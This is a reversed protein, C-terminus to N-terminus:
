EILTENFKLYVYGPYGQLETACFPCVAQYACTGHPLPVESWFKVTKETAIHGCPNFAFLKPDSDNTIDDVYFAPEMGMCLKQATSKKYCTPCTAPLSSGGCVHGCNLYVYPQQSESAESTESPNRRPVVLFTPSSEGGSDCNLRSILGEIYEKTVSKKLGEATRWLLTVGCIDILSGDKLKNTANKIERGREQSSRSGRVSLISGCVSVERWVSAELEGGCFTGEPNSLLVGNTTLGDIDDDKKWKVAKVGLIINRRSDFGAACLRVNSLDCRDAIIRFAFRSVTSQHVKGNDELYKDLVVFDIIKDNARGIQFMDTKKDDEYEVVITEDKSIEYSISFATSDKVAKSLQATKFNSSCKKKVGNPEKRRTFLFKSRKRGRSGSPLCGNYGIVFLGGYVAEENDDLAPAASVSTSNSANAHPKTRDGQVDM